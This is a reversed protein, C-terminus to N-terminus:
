LDTLILSYGNENKSFEAQAFDHLRILHDLSELTCLTGDYIVPNESELDGLMGIRIVVELAGGKEPLIERSKEVKTLFKRAESSDKFKLKQVGGPTIKEINLQRFTESTGKKRFEVVYHLSEDTQNCFYLAHGSSQFM